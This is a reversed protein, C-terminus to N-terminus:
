GSYEERYIRLFVVITALLVPGIFIGIPGYAQLGGLIGFFLFFTSINTRSGIVLPRVLNDVLSIVLTGWALLILGRGWLGQTFFYVDAPVWVLAAGGLPIFSALSSALGLFLAFPLDLAWFALGAALGQLVSTFVMGQVVASLTEYLRGFIADKHEPEMPLLDRFALYLKRGDRFFFFLMVLTILVNFVFSAVNRAIGGLESILLATGKQAGQVGLDSLDLSGELDHPLLREALKGLRNNRLSEFWARTEGSAAKEQLVEYFSQGQGIAVGTLTALPGILLTSVLLTMLAASLSPRRLRALLVRYVPFFVLTLVAAWAFATLFFAFVRYVEHLLFALVAFFFVAFLQERTM